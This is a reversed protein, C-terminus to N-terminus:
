DAFLEPLFDDEVYQTQEQFIPWRPSFVLVLIIDNSYPEIINSISPCLNVRLYGDEDTPLRTDQDEVLFFQQLLVTNRFTHRRLIEIFFRSHYYTGSFHGVETEIVASSREIFYFM